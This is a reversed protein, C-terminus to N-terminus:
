EFNKVGSCLAVWALSTNNQNIEEDPDRGELEDYDALCFQVKFIPQLEFECNVCFYDTIFVKKNM